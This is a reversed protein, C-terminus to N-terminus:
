LKVFCDLTTELSYDLTAIGIPIRVQNSYNFNDSCTNNECQYIRDICGNFSMCTLNNNGNSREGFKDVCEIEGNTCTFFFDKEEPGEAKIEFVRLRSCMCTGDGQCLREIGNEAIACEGCTGGCGDDGCEKGDCDPECIDEDVMDAAPVDIPVDLAVDNFPVDAVVDTDEVVDTIDNIVADEVSDFMDDSIFVDDTVDEADILIIDVIDETLVDQEVITDFVDNSNINSGCGIMTVMAIVFVFNKM